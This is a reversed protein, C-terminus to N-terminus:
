ENVPARDNMNRGIRIRFRAAGLRFDASEGHVAVLLADGLAAGVVLRATEGSRPNRLWAEPGTSGSAVGTLIWDSWPFTPPSPAEAPAPTAEGVGPPPLRFPDARTLASFRALRATDYPAPSRAAPGRGPVFITTLRVTVTFRDGDATPDIDVHDVRKIWPGADIRDILAIVTALTGGGAIWADLEVFDIEDRLVKWDGSRPFAARAPSRRPAAHGTGVTTGDLGVAEAIRNLRTRLHHDVTELDAGLTRDVFSQIAGAVETARELAGAYRNVRAGTEEIAGRLRARPGGYLRGTAGVALWGAAALAIAGVILRTPATM